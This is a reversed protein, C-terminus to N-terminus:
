NPDHTVLEIINSELVSLSYDNSYDTKVIKKSDSLSINFKRHQGTKNSRFLETLLINNPHASILQISGTEIQNEDEVPM